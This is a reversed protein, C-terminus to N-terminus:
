LVAEGLTFAAALPLLIHLLRGLTRQPVRSVMWPGLQGGLLAGPVSFVALNMIAIFESGGTAAPKV